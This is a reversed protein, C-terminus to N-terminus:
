VSAAPLVKPWIPTLRLVLTIPTNMKFCAGTLGCWHPSCPQLWGGDPGRSLLSPGGPGRPCMQSEPRSRKDQFKMYLNKFLFAFPPPVKSDSHLPPRPETLMPLHGTGGLVAPAGAGSGRLREQPFCALGRGRWRQQGSGMREVQRRHPRRGGEGVSAQRRQQEVRCLQKTSFWKVHQLM